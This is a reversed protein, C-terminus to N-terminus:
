ETGVIRVPEICPLRDRADEKCPRCEVTVTKGQHRTGIEEALHGKITYNKPPENGEPAPVTLVLRAFPANGVVRATGKLVLTEGRKGMCEGTGGFFTMSAFLSLMAVFAAEIRM